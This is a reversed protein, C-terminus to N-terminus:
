QINSFELIYLHFTERSMPHVGRGREAVEDGLDYSELGASKVVVKKFMNQNNQFYHRINPDKEALELFVRGVDPYLGDKQLEIIQLLEQPHDLLAPVIDIVRGELDALAPNDKLVSEIVKSFIEQNDKLYNNILPDTDVMSLLKETMEVYQGQNFQGIM